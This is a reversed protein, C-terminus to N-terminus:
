NFLLPMRNLLMIGERYSPNSALDKSYGWQVTKLIVYLFAIFDFILVRHFYHTQDGVVQKTEM